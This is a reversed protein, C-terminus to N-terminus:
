IHILSLEQGIAMLVDDCEFLVPDKGTSVLRRRGDDDYVADVRDFTVGIFKGNEVVFALPVHNDVIPIDEHMADEKEWPSAKMESFPSRVVVKVDEGGLRRATRCCDMATNGGGLVVVRKGISSSHEFAVSSLWDIGIHIHAAADAQGALGLDKGRPAGTGVFVADYKKDLIEKLSNVTTNFHTVVGMDLIYNVEENLVTEPLRFSPIQSKMMGGGATQDDYLDISYGLPM